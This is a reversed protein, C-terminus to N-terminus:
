TSGPGETTASGRLRRWVPRALLGVVVFWVAVLLVDRREASPSVNSHIQYGEVAAVAALATVLGVVWGGAAASAAVVLAVLAVVGALGISHRLPALGGAVVLSGTVGCIASVAQQDVEINSRTYM